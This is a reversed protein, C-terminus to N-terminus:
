EQEHGGRVGRPAQGLKTKSANASIGHRDGPLKSFSQGAKYTTVPGVIILTASWGRPIPALKRHTM